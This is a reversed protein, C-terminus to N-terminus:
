FTIICKVCILIEAVSQLMSIMDDAGRSMNKTAPIMEM